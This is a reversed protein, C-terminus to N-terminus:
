PATPAADDPLSLRGRALKQRVRQLERFDPVHVHLPIRQVGAGDREHGRGPERRAGSVSRVMLLSVLRVALPRSM